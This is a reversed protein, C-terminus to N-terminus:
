IDDRPEPLPKFGVPVFPESHDYFTVYITKPDVDGKVLVMYVDLLGYGNHGNPTPYECCSGAREYKVVEGNLGSISNLFAAQRASGSLDEFGGLQIPNEKTFGYTPDTSLRLGRMRPWDGTKGNPVGIGAVVTRALIEGDRAPNTFCGSTSVVVAIIAILNRASM